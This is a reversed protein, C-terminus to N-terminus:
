LFFMSQSDSPGCGQAGYEVLVYRRGDEHFICWTIFPM